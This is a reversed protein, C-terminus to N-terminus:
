GINSLKEESFKDHQKRITIRIYNINILERTLTYKTVLVCFFSAEKM